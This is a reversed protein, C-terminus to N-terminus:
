KRRAPKGGAYLLALSGVLAAGALWPPVEPQTLMVASLLLGIGGLVQLFCGAPRTM